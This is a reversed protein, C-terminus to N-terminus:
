EGDDEDTETSNKTKFKTSINEVWSISFSDHSRSIESQYESIDYINDPINNSIENFQTQYIQANCHINRIIFSNIPEDNDDKKEKNKEKSEKKNKINKSNTITKNKNENKEKLINKDQEDKFSRTYEDTDQNSIGTNVDQKEDENCYDNLNREVMDMNDYPDREHEYSFFNSDYDHNFDLSCQKKQSNNQNSTNLSQIIFKNDEM